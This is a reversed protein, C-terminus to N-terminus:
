PPKSHTLTQRLLAQRDAVILRRKHRRVLGLDIMTRVVRSVMERSAGVRRALEESGFPLTAECDDELTNEVLAAAIRQHVTTLALQALRRHSAGLRKTVKQLMCMTVHANTALCNIVVHRPIYLVECPESSRIGAISLGEEFFGLEGFFNHARITAAIFERGENDSHVVQVRGSLLIYIGGAVAGAQQIFVRPPYQRREIQPLVRALQADDFWSFPPLKRLEDAHGLIREV